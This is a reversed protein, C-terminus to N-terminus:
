DTGSRRTPACYHVAIFEQVGDILSRISFPKRMFEVNWLKFMRARLEAAHTSGSALVLQYDKYEFIRIMLDEAASADRDFDIIILAVDLHRQLARFSLFAEDNSAYSAVNYRTGLISSAM